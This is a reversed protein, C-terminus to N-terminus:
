PLTLQCKIALHDSLGSVTAVNAVELGRTTFLGDVVLKLHGARHHTGDITTTIDAPIWDIFEEALRDFIEGGRPANFDGALLLNESQRFKALLTKLDQRQKPTAQGSPAWTFHTTSITVPKGLDDIVISALVKNTKGVLETGYTPIDSSSGSYYYNSVSLPKLSTLIAVGWPFLPINKQDPSPHYTSARLSMPAFHSSMGLESALTLLDPEYVEQLLIIDPRNQKFFTFVEELHYRGEINLDVLSLTKM